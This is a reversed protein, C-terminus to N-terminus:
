QGIRGGQQTNPAHKAHHGIGSRAGVFIGGDPEKDRAQGEQRAPGLGPLFAHCGKNRVVVIVISVLTVGLRNRFM